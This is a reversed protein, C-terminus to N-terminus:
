AAVHSGIKEIVTLAHVPLGRRRWETSGGALPRIRAIGFDRLRLAMQAAAAENPCDCFLIIESNKRHVIGLSSHLRKRNYYREIFEEVHDRLHDLDNYEDRLNTELKRPPREQVDIDM